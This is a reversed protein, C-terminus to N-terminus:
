AFPLKLHGEGLLKGVRGGVGQEGCTTTPKKKKLDKKRDYM